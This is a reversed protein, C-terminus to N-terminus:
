KVWVGSGNVWCGDPTYRNTYMTGDSGLYYWKGSSKIWRNAYMAGDSGVYYWKNYWQVWKNTAMTGDAQMFYWKNGSKLWIKVVAAGYDNFYYWNGSAQKWGKAYEYNPGFFYTKGNSFTKLSNPKVGYFAYFDFDYIGAHDLYETTDRGHSPWVNSSGTSDYMKNMLNNHFASDYNIVDSIHPSQSKSGYILTDPIFVYGFTSFREFLEGEITTVGWPIVLIREGNLQTTATHSLGSPLNTMPDFSVDLFSGTALIEVNPHFSITKKKTPCRLLKKYDKTYLVGDYASYYPNDPDVQYDSKAVMYTISSSPTAQYLDTYLQECDKGVIITDFYNGITLYGTAGISTIGDDIILTQISYASFDKTEPWDGKGQLTLTETSSDYTYSFSNGLDKFEVNESKAAGLCLCFVIGLALTVLSLRIIKKM